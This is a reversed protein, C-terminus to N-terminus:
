PLVPDPRKTVNVLSAAGPVKVDKAGVRVTKGLHKRVDAPVELARRSDNTDIVDAVRDTWGPAGPSYVRPLYDPGGVVTGRRPMGDAKALAAQYEELAADAGVIALM